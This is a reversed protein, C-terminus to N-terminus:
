VLEGDFMDLISKVTPDGQISEATKEPAVEEEEGQRVVCQLRLSQGWKERCFNEVTERNKVVQNMPFRDLGSFSLTLVPGELGDLQAGNLFIALTPQVKRVTEILSNWDTRIQELKLPGDTAQPVTDAVVAEEVREPSPAAAEEAQPASGTAGVDEARDSPSPAATEEIPPPTIDASPEPPKPVAAKAQPSKAGAGDPLRGSSPRVAAATGTGAGSRAGTPATGDWEKLRVLLQAIDVARGMTALRVFAMELRFRPQVSHRLDQELDLVLQLMRVLDEAAFAAAAAVYRQSEAEGLELRNAQGQVQALLLHRVHEAFGRALEEVDTGSDIVEGVIDLVRGSDAEVVAQSLEFFVGQDVLGLVQQVTEVTIAVADFSAVQDFLSEADRLAGDSRNALAFLAEEEAGIGEAAAITQLHQAIQSAPVRRFNFRQCRSLITQPVDQVETTAFLFVVHPPPEELTKLLANFAPTSLMHVEDIIYIKYTGETSVYRVVERLERIDDVSNNSAGDIELVNMSSGDAISRCSSCQDCPDAGNRDTCNLAKALIRATTTKGVGRPGCFLYAQSIREALLGNKLTATIHEQAVVEDFKRPRWKRATVQYAM